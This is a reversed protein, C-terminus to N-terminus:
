LTELWSISLKVARSVALLVFVLELQGDTTDPSGARATFHLADSGRLSAAELPDRRLIYLMAVCFVVHTFGVEKTANSRVASRWNSHVVESDQVGVAGLESLRVRESKGPLEM